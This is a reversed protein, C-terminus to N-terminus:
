SRTIPPTSGTRREHSRGGSISPVANLAEEDWHEWELLEGPLFVSPVEVREAEPSQLVLVATGPPINWAVEEVPAGTERVVQSESACGMLSLCCILLYSRVPM